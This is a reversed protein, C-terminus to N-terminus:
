RSRGRTRDISDHRYRAADVALRDHHIRYADPESPQPRSTIALAEPCDGAIRFLLAAAPHQYPLPRGGRILRPLHTPLDYGNDAARTLGRALGPWAPDSTVRPDLAAVLPRWHDAPRLESRVAAAVRRTLDHRYGPAPCDPPGCPTLDDTSGTAARWVAVDRALAPDATRLAAAWPEPPLSDATIRAATTIVLQRRQYLYDAWDDRDVDPVAPLWPLPTPGSRPRGGALSVAEAYREAARHLGTAPDIDAHHQSSASRQDPDRDRDLIRELVEVSTPPRIVDLTTADEPATTDLYVHNVQRGRTMAVYLDHRSERGTLVTHSTTATRGQALHITTAYGLEVHDRVYDAPLQVTRRSALHRVQLSGDINLTQIQWRDGNKVWDTSSIPIRRDNRRTVVQDGPSAATGDHLRVERGAPQGNLRDGRARTNLERVTDNTAALLVTDLGAARDHSWATFAQDITTTRDGARVRDHDLYYGLAIPDGVRLALSAHGEGPDSFRVPTDLTAVPHSRAIDRLVGGSAVAALQRTDGVLRVSGGRDLVHAVTRDLDFTGAMGAEDIVVLTGSDIAALAAPLTSSDLGHLLKAITDATGVIATRLEAAAVASPALGIVSGGGDRWAAALV